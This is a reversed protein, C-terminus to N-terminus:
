RHIQELSNIDFLKESETGKMNPFGGPAIWITGRDNQVDLVQISQFEPPAPAKTLRRKGTARSHKAGSRRSDWIKWLKQKRDFAEMTWADSNQSDWDM